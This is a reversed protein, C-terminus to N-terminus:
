WIVVDVWYLVLMTEMYCLGELGEQRSTSSSFYMCPLEPGITKYSFLLIDLLALKPRLSM